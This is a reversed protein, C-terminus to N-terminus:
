DFRPEYWPWILREAASFDPRERNQYAEAVHSLIAKKIGAPVLTATSYGAVFAIRVADSVLLTSPYVVGYAPEIQGRTRDAGVGTVLYQDAAWTQEVGTTDLYKVSTVSLLPPFPLDIACEPFCPLRMEWAQSIVARGCFKEAWQRAAVILTGSIYTDEAASDVRCEAKAEDLTVPETAPPTILYLNAAYM